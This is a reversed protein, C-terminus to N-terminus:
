RAVEEGPEALRALLGALEAGVKLGVAMYLLPLTGASLLRGLEGRDLMPQLFEGGRYLALLGIGIFLAGALGELLSLWGHDLDQGPRALLPLFFATALIVGGQFGGGPTLHGHLVIYLGVVMLLPSLLDAGARLIFGGDGAPPAARRRGLVLGAATAAVFLIALEGLTDIGRYGLVVATVINATGTETPAAALVAEGVRMPPEGFPLGATLAFLLFGLGCVFLLSTLNRVM